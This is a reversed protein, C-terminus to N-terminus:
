YYSYNVEQFLICAKSLPFSNLQKSEKLKLLDIIKKIDTLQCMCMFFMM